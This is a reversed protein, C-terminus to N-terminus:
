ETSQSPTFSSLANSIMSQVESTTPYSSLDNTTLVRNGNINVNSIQFNVSNGTTGKIILETSGALTIQKTRLEPTFIEYPKIFTQTFGEEDFFIIKEQSVQIGQNTELNLFQIIGSNSYMQSNESESLIISGTIKGSILANTAEINSTTIKGDSTIITTGGGFNANGGVISSGTVTSGSIATGSITGGIITGASVTGTFTGDAADITGKFHANGDSDMYIVQASDKLIQFVNADNPNIKVTNIGNTVTFGDNNMSMTNNNNQIFLNNGVVLTGMVVKSNVGYSTSGDPLTLEGIAFDLSNWADGTVCLNGSTIWMQRPDYTGDSKKKRIKIGYGGYTVEDNENNKIKLLNANFNNNILDSVANAKTNTNKIGSGNYSIFNANSKSQDILDKFSFSGDLNRRSTFTFTINDPNDYDMEIELLRAEIFYKGSLDKDYDIIVRCGLELQERFCEFEKLTLINKCKVNMTIEPYCHEAAYENANQLLEQQLSLRESQTTTEYVVFTDDQYSDYFNYQSIEKINDETLYDNINVTLEDIKTLLNQITKKKYFIATNKSQIYGEITNMKSACESIQQTTSNSGTSNSGLSIYTSYINNYSDYATQLEALGYVSWNENEKDTQSPPNSELEELELYATTLRNIFGKRSNANNNCVTMYANYNNRASESWKDIFYDYRAIYPSGNNIEHIGLNRMGNDDGGEVYFITKVSNSPINFEVNEMLNKFSLYINTDRFIKPNDMKYANVTHNIIDFIIVCEFSNAVDDTLFSYADTSDVDFTHYSTSINTDVEGISWTPLDKLAIHLCSHDTDTTSCLCYMDYDELEENSVVSEVKKDCFEQELTKANIKKYPNDGNNNEETNFEQFWGINEIFFKCKSEIKDYFENLVNNERYKYVKFNLDGINNLPMKISFGNILNSRIIAIEEESTSALVIDPKEYEGNPSIAVSFNRVAM